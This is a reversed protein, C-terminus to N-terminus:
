RTLWYTWYISNWNVTDPKDCHYGDWLLPTTIAPQDYWGSGPKRCYWPWVCTCGIVAVDVPFNAPNNQIPEDNYCPNHHCFIFKCGMCNTPWYYPKQGLAGFIQVLSGPDKIPHTAQGISATPRDRRYEVTAYWFRIPLSWLLQHAAQRLPLHQWRTGWQVIRSLLHHPLLHLMVIKFCHAM